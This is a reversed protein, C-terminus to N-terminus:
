LLTLGEPKPTEPGGKPNWTCAEVKNMRRDDLHLGGLRNRMVVITRGFFRL